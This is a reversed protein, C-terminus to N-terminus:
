PTTEKFAKINQRLESANMRKIDAIVSQRWDIYEEETELPAIIDPDNELIDLFQAQLPTLESM